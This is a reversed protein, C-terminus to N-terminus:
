IKNEKLFQKIMPGFHEADHKHAASRLLEFRDIEVPEEEGNKFLLITPLKSPTKFYDSENWGEYYYWHLNANQKYLKQKRAFDEFRDLIDLNKSTKPHTVLVIKDQSMNYKYFHAQFDTSVM